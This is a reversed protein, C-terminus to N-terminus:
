GLERMYATVIYKNPLLGGDDGQRFRFLVIAVIHTNDKPLDAFAKAYRYKQPNVRDEQRQGSAVTEKLHEEYRVMEPHNLQATIHLWQEQTLYIIPESQDRIAWRRGAAM